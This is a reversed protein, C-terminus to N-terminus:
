ARTAGVTVRRAEAAPWDSPAAPAARAAGTPVTAGHSFTDRLAGKAIEQPRPKRDVDLIQALAPAHRLQLERRRRAEAASEDVLDFAAM